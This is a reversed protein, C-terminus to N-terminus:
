CIRAENEINGGFAMRLTAKTLSGVCTMIFAAKLDNERVFADLEKFLDQNPKLRIVYVKLNSSAARAISSKTEVSTM